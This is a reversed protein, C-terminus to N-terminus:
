ERTWEALLVRARSAEGELAVTTRQDVQVSSRDRYTDPRLAKLRLTLAAMQTPTGEREGRAIEDAIRELEASIAVEHEKWREAFESDSRRWRAVEAPNAGSAECATAWGRSLNALFAEQKARRGEMRTPNHAVSEFALSASVPIQSIRQMDRIRRAKRTSASCLKVSNRHNGTAVQQTRRELPAAVGIPVARM